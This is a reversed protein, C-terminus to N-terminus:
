SPVRNKWYGPLRKDHAVAIVWLETGGVFYVVRYPWREPLHAARVAPIRGWGPWVPALKPWDVVFDLTRQAMANFRSGLGSQRDDYWRIAALLEARADPHFKTSRIM